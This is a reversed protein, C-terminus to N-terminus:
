LWASHRMKKNSHQTDNNKTNDQHTDHCWSFQRNTEGDVPKVVVDADM